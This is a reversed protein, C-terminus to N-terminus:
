VVLNIRVGTISPVSAFVGRSSYTLRDYPNVCPNHPELSPREKCAAEWVGDKPCLDIVDEFSKSVNAERPQEESM